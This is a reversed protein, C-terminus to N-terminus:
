PQVKKGAPATHLKAYYAAVSSVDDASLHKAVSEMLGLPGPPRTGSQWAEIQQQMYAATLGGIPPFHPPVGIGGPGHCQACAPVGDQWRGRTALWAGRDSPFAPLEKATSLPPPLAAFWAAVSARQNANLAQAMPGMVAQKRSGSAFAELQAILYAKGAGALPPFTSSGEGQAGHCSICAAVQPPLGERAIREGVQDSAPQAQAMASAWLAILM